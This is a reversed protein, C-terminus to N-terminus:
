APKSGQAQADLLRAADVHKKIMALFADVDMHAGALNDAYRITQVLYTIAFSMVTNTSAGAENFIEDAITSAYMILREDVSVVKNGLRVFGPAGEIEQAQSMEALRKETAERDKAKRPKM